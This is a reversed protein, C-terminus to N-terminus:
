AADVGGDDSFDGLVIAGDAGVDRGAGGQDAIIESFGAGTDM